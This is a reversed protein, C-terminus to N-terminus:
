AGFAYGFMAQAVGQMPQVEAENARQRAQKVARQLAEVRELIEGKRAPTVLGSWEQEVIRGVPVDEPVLQVQAPHETTAPYLVVPTSVKKTRTKTIERAKFVNAGRQADPQFGKAPDLTPVATVLEHLEALRKELELLATAPANAIFTTGDDLVVDAVARQNTLAVQYSADIAKGWIGALWGLETPIQSQLDSQQEVVPQADEEKPFFTTRKEEFLHRKKEFTNRLDTRCTQAQSKLQGEVALLENLKKM